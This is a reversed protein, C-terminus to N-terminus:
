RKKALHVFPEDHYLEEHAIYGFSAGETLRDQPLCELAVKLDDFTVGFYSSCRSMDEDRRELPGCLSGKETGSSAGSM